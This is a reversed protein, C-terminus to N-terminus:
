CRKRAVTMISYSRESDEVTPYALLHALRRIMAPSHLALEDGLRGDITKRRVLDTEQKFLVNSWPQGLRYLVEFGHRDLLGSLSAYTFLRKHYSNKPLGARDRGEFAANPVSCIFTGDVPLLENFQRLVPDPDLLHEITEFCVIADLSAAGLTEALDETNLRNRILRASPGVYRAAAELVRSDGDVGIVRGAVEELEPLGYGIGCGVDAVARPEHRRLHDRAFLYRGLHEIKM